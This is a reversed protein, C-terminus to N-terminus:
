SLVQQASISLSSVLGYKQPATVHREPTLVLLGSTGYEYQQRWNSGQRIVHGAPLLADYEATVPCTLHTPKFIDGTDIISEPVQHSTRQLISYGGAECQFTSCSEHFV